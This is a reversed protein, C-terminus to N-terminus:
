SSKMCAGTVAALREHVFVHEITESLSRFQLSFFMAVLVGPACVGGVGRFCVVVVRRLGALVPVRVLRVVLLVERVVDRVV